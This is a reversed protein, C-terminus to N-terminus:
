RGMDDKNLKDKYAKIREILKAKQEKTAFINQAAYINMQLLDDIGLNTNSLIYDYEELINTNSVTDNDPSITVKIGRKYLEEVPVTGTVAQTQLNSIPCIELPIQKKVLEEVLSEDELCRVGHGIRKAGFSLADKISKPGDAEGAHITFPVGNKSAFEFIDRFNETKFLAEAGALDISSVGKGLFKKAVKVTELNEKKNDPGRMCCLILSGDIDYKEIAEQMGDIAFQVIEEYSLGNLLHLSPAFRVEAYIVNQRALDEFLEFTARKIHDSTQLLKVPIDFKELYENLNRCDKKVMLMKKIDEISVKRKLSEETWEKVTEPRLSGDLHLHLIVKPLKSIQNEM